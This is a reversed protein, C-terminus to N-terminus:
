VENVAGVAACWLSPSAVHAEGSEERHVPINLCECLRAADVHYTREQTITHLTVPVLPSALVADPPDMGHCARPTRLSAVPMPHCPLCIAVTIRPRDTGLVPLHISYCDSATSLRLCWGFLKRWMPSMFLRSGHHHIIDHCCWDSYTWHCGQSKCGMSSTLVVPGRAVCWM